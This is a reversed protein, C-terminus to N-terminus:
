FQIQKFLKQIQSFQCLRYFLHLELMDLLAMFLLLWDTQEQSLLSFLKKFIQMLELIIIKILEKKNIDVDSLFQLILIKM